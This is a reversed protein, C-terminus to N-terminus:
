APATLEGVHQRVEDLRSLTEEDFPPPFAVIIHRFGVELYPLLGEAIERPSGLLPPWVDDPGIAFPRLADVLAARASRADDRIIMSVGCTREIEDPNRGVTACHERLVADSAALEDPLGRTNWM